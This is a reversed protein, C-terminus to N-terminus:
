YDTIAKEKAFAEHVYLRNNEKNAIIEVACVYHVGDITIPAAVIGTKQKKGGTHYYDLPLIVIGKELVDKVAAFAINKEVGMGHGKDNKVGKRDLLVDGFPSKAKGGQREFLETVADIFSQGERAIIKEGELKAVAAGNLITDKQWSREWDGFYKKFGETRVQLWRRREKLNSDKGNPAKMWTGNRKAGEEVDKTEKNEGVSFMTEGEGSDLGLGEKVKNYLEDTVGTGSEKMDRVYDDLIKKNYDNDFIPQVVEQPILRGNKDFLKFNFKSLSVHLDSAIYNKITSKYRSRCFYIFVIM